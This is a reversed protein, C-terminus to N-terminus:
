FWTNVKTPEPESDSEVVISAMGARRASDLVFFLQAFQVGDGKIAVKAGGDPATSRSQILLDRFKDITVFQGEWQIQGQTTVQIQNFGARGVSTDPAPPLPPEALSTVPGSPLPTRALALARALEDIEAQVGRTETSARERRAIENAMAANARSQPLITWAGTCLVALATAPLLASALTGTLTVAPLLAAQALAVAAVQGVLTTPAASVGATTLASGLTTVTSTLGRRSLATHLKELARDVRKRAAEETIQLTAGIEAFSRQTFFRLVVAERDDTKLEILADDLLPRLVAADVPPDDSLNPLMMVEASTEHQKRRRERRVVEATARHTSVYLWGALSGHDRLSAAKRALSIFVTQTVDQALHIDGGVRRLATASVMAFHRRVLETFAAQEHDEVFRRLLIADANM